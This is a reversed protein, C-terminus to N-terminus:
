VSYGLRQYHGITSCFTPVMCVLYYCQTIGQQQERDERRINQVPFIRIKHLDLFWKPNQHVVVPPLNIAEIEAHTIATDVSSISHGDREGGEGGGRERVPTSCQPGGRTDNKSCFCSEIVVDPLVVTARRSIARTSEMHLSNNNCHRVCCFELRNPHLSLFIKFEM